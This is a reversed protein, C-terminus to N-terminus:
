RDVGRTSMFRRYAGETRLVVQSCNRKNLYHPLLRDTENAGRNRDENLQHLCKRSNTGMGVWWKAANPTHVLTFVDILLM